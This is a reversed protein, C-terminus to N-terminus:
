KNIKSNSKSKKISPQINTTESKKVSKVASDVQKKVPEVSKSNSNSNAKTGASMNGMTLDERIDELQDKIKQIDKRMGGVEVRLDNLIETYVSVTEIENEYEERGGQQRQTKMESRMTPTTMALHDYDIDIKTFAVDGGKAGGSEGNKRLDWPEKNPLLFKANTNEIQAGPHIRSFSRHQKQLMLTSKALFGHKKFWLVNRLSFIPIIILPLLAIIWGIIDYSISKKRHSNNHPIFSFCIIAIGIIPSIFKLNILYYISHSGLFQEFKNSAPGFMEVIDERLNKMGYLYMVCIIEITIACVSPFGVIYETFMEFWHFGANTSFLITLLYLLLCYSLTVLWKRNRLNPFQDYLCTCFVQVQAIQTNLGFLVLVLFFMIAWIFPVPMMTFAEPYVVFSLSVGSEVVEHVEVNRQVALFGLISFVAAGGILSMLTDAFIIIAANKFCNNSRRNYSALSMLGGHGLSLSFCLQKLAECWTRPSFLLSINPSLFFYALGKSAGDLTVGRFFLVLILAYPLVISLYGAKGIRKWVLCGAIIWVVTIAGFVQWNINSIDWMGSSLQNLHFLLYQETPLMLHNGEFDTKNRCEGNIFILDLSSDTGNNENQCQKQALTEVCINKINWSNDCSSWVNFDGQFVKITYLASMSIVVAYYISILASTITSLWGVGELIPMIRRFVIPPSTSQYQGLLLEFYVAPLGFIYSVILYPILFASGGFQYAKTPFRLINGIGVALGLSTLIFEAQNSFLERKTELKSTTTTELESEGLGLEKNTITLENNVPTSDGDMTKEMITANAKKSAESM